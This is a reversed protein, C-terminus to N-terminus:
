IGLAAVRGNKAANHICVCVDSMSLIFVIMVVIMNM